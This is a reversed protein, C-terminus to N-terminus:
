LKKCKEYWIRDVSSLETCLVKTALDSSSKADTSVDALISKLAM